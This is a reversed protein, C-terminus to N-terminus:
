NNGWDNSKTTISIQTTSANSNNTSMAFFDCQIISVCMVVCLLYIVATLSIYIAANCSILALVITTSTTQKTLWNQPLKTRKILDYVLIISYWNCFLYFTALLIWCTYQQMISQQSKAYKQNDGHQTWIQNVPYRKLLSQAMNLCLYLSLLISCMYLPVSYCNCLKIWHNLKMWAINPLFCDENIIYM